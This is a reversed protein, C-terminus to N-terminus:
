FAAELSLLAGLLCQRQRLNQGNGSKAALHSPISDAAANVVVPTPQDVVLTTLARQLTGVQLM